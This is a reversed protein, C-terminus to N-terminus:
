GDEETDDLRAPGALSIVQKREHFATKNLDRLTKDVERSQEFVQPAIRGFAKDLAAYECTAAIRLSLELLHTKNYCFRALEARREEPLTNAIALTDVTGKASYPALQEEPLPCAAENLMEALVRSM